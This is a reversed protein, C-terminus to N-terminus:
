HHRASKQIEFLYLRSGGHQVEGSSSRARAAQRGCFASGKIELLTGCINSANVHNVHACMIVYKVYKFM